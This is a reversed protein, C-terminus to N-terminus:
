CKAFYKPFDIEISFLEFIKQDRYFKKRVHKESTATKLIETTILPNHKHYSLELM